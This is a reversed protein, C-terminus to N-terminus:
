SPTITTMQYLNNNIMDESLDFFLAHSTDEYVMSQTAVNDTDVVSVGLISM